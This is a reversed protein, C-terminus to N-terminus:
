KWKGTDELFEAFDKWDPREFAGKMSSVPLIRNKGSLKITGRDYNLKVKVRDSLIYTQEVASKHDHESLIVDVNHPYMSGNVRYEPEGPIRELM